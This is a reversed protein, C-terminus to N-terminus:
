GRKGDRLIRLAEGLPRRTGIPYEVLLNDRGEFRRELQGFVEGAREFQRMRLLVDAKALRLSADLVAVEPHRSQWEHLLLRDVHMSLYADTFRRMRHMGDRDDRYYLSELTTHFHALDHQARTLREKRQELATGALPATEEAVPMSNIWGLPEPEPTSFCGSLAVAALGALLAPQLSRFALM